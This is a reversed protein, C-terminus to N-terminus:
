SKQHLKMTLYAHVLLIKKSDETIGRLLHACNNISPLEIALEYFSPRKENAMELLIEIEPEYDLAEERLTKMKGM